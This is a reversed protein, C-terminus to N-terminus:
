ELEAFLESLCISVPPAELIDDTVLRRGAKTCDFVEREQPDFVL